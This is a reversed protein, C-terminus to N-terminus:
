RPRVDRHAAHCDACAKASAAFAAAEV